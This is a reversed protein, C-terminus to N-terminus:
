VTLLDMPDNRNRQCVLHLAAVREDLVTDEKLASDASVLYREAMKGGVEGWEHIRKGLKRFIPLKHLQIALLHAVVADV